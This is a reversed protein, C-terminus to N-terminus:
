DNSIVECDKLYDKIKMDKTAGKFYGEKILSILLGDWKFAYNSTFYKLIDYELQSIKYKKQLHEKSWKEVTEIIDFTSYIDEGAIGNCFSYLPCEKCKVRFCDTEGKYDDDRLSDWMRVLEKEYTEKDIM